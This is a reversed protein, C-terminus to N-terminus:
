VLYMLVAGGGLRFQGKGEGWCARHVRVVGEQPVLTGQSEVHGTDGVPLEVPVGVCIRLFHPVKALTSLVVETETLPKHHYKFRSTFYPM